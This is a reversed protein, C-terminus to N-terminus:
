VWPDSCQVGRSGSGSLMRRHMQCQNAMFWQQEKKELSPWDIFPEEAAPYRVEEPTLAARVQLDNGSGSKM